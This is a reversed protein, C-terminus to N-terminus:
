HYPSWRSRCEKGVRREESRAQRVYERATALEFGLEILRAPHGQEIEGAGEAILRATVYELVVAQLTFRGRPKGRELLSRRRLAGVAELVQARPLPTGLVALLEELTVPERLIALWCLVTREVASLRDFQEALLERVSGFVVVDGGLFPAIEGGYLEVITGAVIKLALPNGGYREILREREHATGVLGREALLQRGAAVDLGELRLSRVTTRSGELPVLESPKERSTLLLTSQHATTAMWRLLRAYGEYGPRMHATLEGKELLTELNDLVLLTRQRRLHEQLLSLRQELNAPLDALPQPALVQLFEDLLAEYSPADRLSRWIVAEFHAALRYMASTALASKGVGGMGLVSVVQCRDEIVWQSITALERERGYFTPVVLADGWNVRPSPAPPINSQGHALPTVLPLRPRQKSLLDYLWQEDLLIKQRAAKWLTRIEEVERGVAFAQQRVGLAILGKLHDAKPYSNGAEWEAVARRSVGLQDALGAQTLGISTRLTLIM